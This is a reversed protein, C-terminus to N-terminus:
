IREIREQGLLGYPRIFMVLILIVYPFVGSAGTLHPDLYGVGLSECLGIIPGAIAAGLFSDLGGLLIVPLSKLAYNSLGFTVSAISGLLFGGIAATVCSFIWSRSFISTVSGGCAKASQQGNYIARMTIGGRSYKFYVSLLAFAVLSITFGWIYEQAIAISGLRLPEIPFISSLSVTAEPWTFLIIGRLIFMIALTMGIQSLLPQGILPRLAIRELLWGMIIAILLVMSFALPIPLHFQVLMAYCVWASIAVIEGQALNLVGTSKFILVFGLGILSYILGVAIGTIIYQALEAM